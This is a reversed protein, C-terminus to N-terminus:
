INDMFTFGLHAPVNPITRLLNQSLLCNQEHISICRILGKLESKGGEVIESKVKDNLIKNLLNNLDKLDLIGCYYSM